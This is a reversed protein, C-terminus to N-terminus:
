TPAWLNPDAPDLMDNRLQENAIWIAIGGTVNPGSFKWFKFMKSGSWIQDPGGRSQLPDHLTVEKLTVKTLVRFHGVQPHQESASQCAIIPVKCRDIFYSLQDYRRSHNQSVRGVGAFFGRSRAAEVISDSSMRFPTKGTPDTERNNFFLSPGVATLDPRLYRFVMEFAAAGCANEHIQPVYPVILM